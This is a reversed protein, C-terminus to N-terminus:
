CGFGLVGRKLKVWGACSRDECLHAFEGGESRVPSSRSCLPVPGGLAVERFAAARRGVTLGCVPSPGGALLYTRVLSVDASLSWIRWAEPVTAIHDRCILGHALLSARSCATYRLLSLTLTELKSSLSDLPLM